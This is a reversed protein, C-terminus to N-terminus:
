WAMLPRAGRSLGDKEHRGKKKRNERLRPNRMDDCNCPAGTLAGGRLQFSAWPLALCCISRALACRNARRAEPRAMAMAMATTASKGEAARAVNAESQEPQWLAELSFNKLAAPAAFM